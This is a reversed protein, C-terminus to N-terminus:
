MAMMFHGQRSIVRWLRHRCPKPAARCIAARSPWVLRPVQCKLIFSPPSTLLPSVAPHMSICFGMTSAHSKEVTLASPSRAQRHAMILSCALSPSGHTRAARSCLRGSDATNHDTALRRDERARCLSALVSFTMAQISNEEDQNLSPRSTCCRLNPRAQWTLPSVISMATATRTSVAFILLHSLENSISIGM